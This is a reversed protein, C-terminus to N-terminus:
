IEQPSEEKNLQQRVVATIDTMNKGYILSLVQNTNTGSKDFVIAFNEKKAYQTVLGRIEELIGRMKGRMQNDLEKNAYQYRSEREGDFSRLASM